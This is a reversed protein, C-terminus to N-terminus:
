IKFTPTEDIGMTRNYKFRTYAITREEEKQMAYYIMYGCIGGAVMFM